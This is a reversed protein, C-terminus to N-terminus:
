FFFEADIEVVLALGAGGGGAGSEPEPEGEGLAGAGGGPWTVMPPMVIPILATFVSGSAVATAAV